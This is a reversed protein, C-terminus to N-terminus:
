ERAPLGGLGTTRMIREVTGTLASDAGIVTEVGGPLLDLPRYWARLEAQGFENARPRTAHRAFTEELPVDLYYRIRRGGGEGGTGVGATLEQVAVGPEERLADVSAEDLKGAPVDPHGFV